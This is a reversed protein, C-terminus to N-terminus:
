LGVFIVRALSRSSSLSGVFKQVFTCMGPCFLGFVGRFTRRDNSTFRKMIRPRMVVVLVLRFSIPAFAPFGGSFM